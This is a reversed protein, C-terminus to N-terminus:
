INDAVQPAPAVNQVIRARVDAHEDEAWQFKASQHQAHNDAGVRTMSFRCHMRIPIPGSSILLLASPPHGLTNDALSRSDAQSELLRGSEELTKLLENYVRDNVRVRLFPERPVARRPPLHGRGRWGWCCIPGAILSTVDLQFELTWAEKGAQGKGSARQRHLRCRKGCTSVVEPGSPGSSGPPETRWGERRLVRHCLGAGAPYARAIQRLRQDCSREWPERM